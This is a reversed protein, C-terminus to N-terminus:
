EAATALPAPADGLLDRELQAKRAAATEANRAKVHGFGKIDLPLRALDTLTEARERDLMACWRDLDAEYEAILRREMRREETRGFPDLSTGRLLKGHRLVAFARGMWPGFRRKAPRSEPGSRSLMPPALHYSVRGQGEFAEDLAASLTEHHLRAVEYEDKYSLLKFYGEAVAAAFGDVEARDEAVQARSVAARYRAALGVNQYGTLHRARREVMADLSDDMTDPAEARGGAARVAEPDHVAWRGLAFAKLNGEVGAGNLRIAKELAVRGVPVLGLQWAAGLLLVNAHITDGTLRRALHQAEVLNLAGELRRSLADALRDRPMRASPDIAFQGAVVTESAAVGRTHGPTMLGMAKAGAAVVLDGVIVADAEGTALRVAHIAEPTGAVRCHISVAGGKQALGAMQMEVAGKGELHAAMSILAGVTVVGTGGIGTILMNWPRDLVPLAPEPLDPITAEATREARPVAGEVTVFSPCFGKVCSMDMTCASQDIRRKTGLPTDLPQVAVCNSAVGCDGCGECVAPNIFIREPAPPLKGRKRRRKKETACTQMYLIATTGPIEAIARQVRDLDDRPYKAVGPPMEPEDESPDYVCDVRKVGAALMLAAIDRAGLEGDNPQGGTMAVADNYLVKYTINTGAAVAARIAMLGSHNFTGDGINQFVHPRNSFPAEGVWNAGEAGMHTYGETERDMWQVMYHCGIGAYARSGEPVRTSTSHPCGACFWPKREAIAPADPIKLAELRSLGDVMPPHDVGESMLLRALAEAIMGADLDLTERFLVRGQGDRRGVVRPHRPLDFLIDRLQTEILARKEEVVVILDLGEAFARLGEPELPWTLAIKYASIGLAEAAPGDIGLFGLASVVDLWSKGATVIGIRAGPRGILRRDLRNARAWAGVAPLRREVLRAEQQQPTVRLAINLDGALGEPRVFSMRAPDGDVIATAEVTDKMAKLGVWVGTDRSLAWGTLALDLVDQVGAPSLVPIMADMMAFDSQHCTTSSECTHDDGMVAIVGGAPATGALNAHRFADGSRDVGPGKGYWMAFVGEHRGEGRLHAQQTGWIATAALDENLATQFRINQPALWKEAGQFTVDVGGLPSGRYGSVYGATDLGTARDRARQMLTARVLAQTGSLLVPSRDLDFRDSLRLDRLDM